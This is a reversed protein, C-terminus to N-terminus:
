HFGTTFINEYLTVNLVKDLMLSLAGRCFVALLMLM